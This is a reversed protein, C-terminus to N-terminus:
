ADLHNEESEPAQSLPVAFSLQTGSGPISKVNLRGGLAGAREQISRLGLGSHTKHPDFGLGDDSITCTIEHKDYILEIEARGAQSHRAVNALGEQVIRFVTQEVYLPLSRERQVRVELPIGNQRSWDAAYDRVAAALGKGELAAPRLEQILRTLEQRLDYILREAEQVHTEAAPADQQLLTKAASIQAAAAFAQQKASDHLDRALRTREEVVALERRTDLLQQLQQAMHNLRQALQGLEDGSPDDVFVSFDGQRWALTAEALRDLRHVPGRAALFGFLTGILGAVFTFCLLSVGVIPLADGLFSGLTPVDAMAALAGLAQEHAADWVPVTIVVKAGPRALTYLHEGEEDGALAARLPNALGPIAQFDFPQGIVDVGLLDPPRAGLLRGDSGVVLMEDTAEFTLPLPVSSASGARELWDAVGELDPPTQALYPRLTPVYDVSAAEILRTQLFGSNLIVVLGIGLAGLIILEVTLLAGVTVGTYSLTLKWRLRQFRKTLSRRMSM